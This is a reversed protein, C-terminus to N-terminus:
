KHFGQADGAATAENDPLVEHSGQQYITGAHAQGSEPEQVREQRGEDVNRRFKGEDEVGGPEQGTTRIASGTTEACAHRRRWTWISRRSPRPRLRAYVANKTM